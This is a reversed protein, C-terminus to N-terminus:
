QMYHCQLICHTDIKRDLIQDLDSSIEWNDALDRLLSNNKLLLGMM